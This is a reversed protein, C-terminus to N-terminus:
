RNGLGIKYGINISSSGRVESVSTILTSGRIDLFLIGPGVNFGFEGGLTVALGAGIIPGIYIGLECKGPRFLLKALLDVVFMSKTSDYGYTTTYSGSVYDYNSTSEVYVFGQWGLEVGLGFNKTFFVDTTALFNFGTGYGTLVGLYWRKNKWEDRAVVPQKERKPAAIPVTKEPTPTSAPLPAASATEAHEMNMLAALM